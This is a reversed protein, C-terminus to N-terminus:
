WSSFRWCAMTIIFALNACSFCTHLAMVAFIGNIKGIWACIAAVSYNITMILYMWFGWNLLTYWKENANVGDNICTVQYYQYSTVFNASIETLNERVVYFGITYALAVVACVLCPLFFLARCLTRLGQEKMEDM